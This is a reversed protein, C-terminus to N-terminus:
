KDSLDSFTNLCYNKTSQKTNALPAHLSTHSGKKKLGFSNCVKPAYNM